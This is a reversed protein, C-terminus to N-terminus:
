GSDGRNSPADHAARRASTWSPDEGHLALRGRHRWTGAVMAALMPYAWFAQAMAYARPVVEPNAAMAAHTAVGVLHFGAVWLPWFRNAKLALAVFAVLAVLDIIFIGLELSRFRIAYDATASLTSLISGVVLIAMGTREPAAGRIFVYGSCLAVLTWYFLPNTM